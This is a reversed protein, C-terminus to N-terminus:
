LNCSTPCCSIGTSCVETHAVPEKLRITIQPDLDYLDEEALCKVKELGTNLDNEMKLGM